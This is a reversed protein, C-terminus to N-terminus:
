GSKEMYDRLIDEAMQRNVEKTYHIMDEIFLGNGRVNPVYQPLTKPDFLSLNGYKRCLEEFIGNIYHMNSLATGVSDFNAMADPCAMLHFYIPPAGLVENFGDVMREYIGKLRTELYERDVLVEQEGGRWHLGIVEYEMGTSGFSDDLLSLIHMTFPFLSIDVEFPGGPIMVPPRDPYWMYKESVGQAGIAIHVIYLDPVDAGANIGNQWTRALLNPISYTDDQAEGLNMGASIYNSWVLETHDFSQNLERSLGYVNPLPDRIVDEPAMPIGHGVANSQGLIIFVAVKKNNLM